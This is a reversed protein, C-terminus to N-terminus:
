NQLSRKTKLNTTCAAVTPLVHGQKENLFLVTFIRVVTFNISENTDENAQSDIVIEHSIEGM